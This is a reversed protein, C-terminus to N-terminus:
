GGVKLLLKGVTNKEELLEHAESAKELPFVGFIEAKIQGKALLTLAEKASKGVEAPATQSYAGINFGKISKNSLWIDNSSQPVDDTGSANGLMIIQGMPRLLEQSLIRMDGGVPDLVIDVKHPGLMQNIPEIFDSRLLLEDYSLSAALKTKEISGVTGIVKGAGFVKAMQGLFSGLGGAAAHVLVNEGARMRAVNKITMYATTLNVIAAAASALDLEGGLQDLPVTLEPRVQAVSAYGGMEMLTMAAVPQGIYFGEVGDRIAKVYGSVELGPVVPMPILSGFEGRRLLVDVYGVGAYAVDITLMGPAPQLEPLERVVLDAAECPRDIMIAKM